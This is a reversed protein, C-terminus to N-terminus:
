DNQIATVAATGGTNVANNGLPTMYWMILLGIGTLLAVMVVFEVTSSGSRKQSIM